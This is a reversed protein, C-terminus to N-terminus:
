TGRVSADNSGCFGLALRCHVVIADHGLQFFTVLNLITIDNLEQQLLNRGLSIWCLQDLHNQTPFTDGGTRM